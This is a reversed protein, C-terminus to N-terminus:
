WKGNKIIIEAIKKLQEQSLIPKLANNIDLMTSITALHTGKRVSLIFPDMNPPGNHAEDGVGEVPGIFARKWSDKKKAEAYAKLDVTEFVVSLIRVGDPRVFNLDGILMKKPDPDKPLMKLGTTGSVKEVDAVTLLKENVGAGRVPITFVLLLAFPLIRATISHAHKKM